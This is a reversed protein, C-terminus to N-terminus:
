KDRGYEFQVWGYGYVQPSDNIKVALRKRMGIDFNTM